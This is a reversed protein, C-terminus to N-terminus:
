FPILDLFAKKQFLNLYISERKIITTNAGQIEVGVLVKDFYSTLHNKPRLLYLPVSDRVLFCFM